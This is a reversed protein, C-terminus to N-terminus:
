KLQFPDLKNDGPKIEVKITTKERTAYRGALLDPADSASAGMMRQADSIKVKPDPWIVTVIYKGAKVGGAAGTSMKFTGDAGTTATAPTIKMDGPTEPLFMIIAGTASKGDVQVSGTVAELRPSSDCGVLFFVGGILVTLIGIRM